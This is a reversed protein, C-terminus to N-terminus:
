FGIRRDNPFFNKKLRNLLIIMSYVFFGLYCMSIGFRTHPCTLLQNLHMISTMLCISWPVIVGIWFILKSHQYQGIQSLALLLTCALLIHCLPLNGIRLCTSDSQFDIISLRATAFLAMLSILATAIKLTFLRKSM